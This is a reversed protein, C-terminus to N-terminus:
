RARGLPEDPHSPVPGRRCLGLVLARRPSSPHDGGSRHRHHDRDRELRGLLKRDEAAAGRPAAAGRELHALDVRGDADERITVVDAVSERWPLENSHHEYPGVFVVPRKPPSRGPSAFSTRSRRRSGCGSSESSSTSRERRGRAASSARRRRGVRRRRPSDGPARGRAAADDAPWDGVVGYPHERLPPAGRRPHLRRHLTLARGSATYDAYVIRRPGFPGDFVADNGVVSSRIREILRERDRDAAGDPAPMAEARAGDRRADTAHLAAILARNVGQLFGLGAASHDDLLGRMVKDDIELVRAAELATCTATRPGGDILSLEGLMRGPGLTALRLRREGRRRGVEITGRLVVFASRTAAAEAFLVAGAELDWVRLSRTLRELEDPEIQEFYSLSRIFPLEQRPDPGPTAAQAAAPAAPAGTDGAARVREALILSLRKLASFAIPDCEARLQDFDATELFFGSVPELATAEASHTTSGNLGLEGLMDGPGAVALVPEGIGVTGSGVLFMREAPAGFRFITEGIAASFPRVHRAMVEVQPEDLDCFLRCGSIAALAELDRTM